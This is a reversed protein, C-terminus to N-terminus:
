RNAAQGNLYGPLGQPNQFLVKMMWCLAPFHKRPNGLAREAENSTLPLHPHRLVMFIADWDNLFEVALARAKKHKSNLM